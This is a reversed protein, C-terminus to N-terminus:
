QDRLEADENRFLGIRYWTLQFLHDMGDLSRGATEPLSLLVWIGGDVRIAAFTRFTRAPVIGGDTKSLLMNSVARSNRYQHTFHVCMVISSCPARIRLPFLEATLVFQTSGWGLAWGFGSLYIM